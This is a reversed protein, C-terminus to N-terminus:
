REAATSTWTPAGRGARFATLNREVTAEGKSAFRSRIFAEMTEVGVPLFRSAAGAVVMNTARALGAQRALHDAEVLVVHPLREFEALVADLPPYDPVNRVPDRASVVWGDQALLPLHRLAELPELSLVMGAAGVPVLASAIEHDAIRLHASVAGGRQSMGHVESQTVHRGEHMASWGIIAAASLVGQGGVGALVIDFTM